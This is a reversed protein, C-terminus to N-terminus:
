VEVGLESFVFTWTDTLEDLVKSIPKGGGHGARGGAAAPDPSWVCEGGSTPAQWQGHSFESPANM